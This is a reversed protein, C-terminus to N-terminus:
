RIIDEYKMNVITYDLVINRGVQGALLNIAEEVARQSVYYFDQRVTNMQMGVYGMLTIGDYGCVPRFIDLHILAKMAGIAMLDSACVIVDSNEACDLAIKRAELESFEGHKIRLRLNM